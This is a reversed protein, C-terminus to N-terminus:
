AKDSAHKLSHDYNRSVQFASLAESYYRVTSITGSFYGGDGFNNAGSKGIHYHTLDAEPRRSYNLHGKKAGNLYGTLTTGDHTCVIQYWCDPSFKGVSLNVLGTTGMGGVRIEGGALEILSYQTDETYHSVVVGNSEPKVWIELTYLQLARGMEPCKLWQSLSASFRVGGTTASYVPSNVVSFDRKNGSVDRIVGGSFADTSRLELLCVINLQVYSLSGTLLVEKLLDLVYRTEEQGKHLEDMSETSVRLKDLIDVQGIKLKDVDGMMDSVNNLKGMIEDKSKESNSILEGKTRKADESAQQLRYPIKDERIKLTDERDDERVLYYTHKNTSFTWPRYQEIMIKARERNWEAEENDKIKGFSSNMLAILLNLLLISSLFIFACLLFQALTPNITQLMQSVDAGGM